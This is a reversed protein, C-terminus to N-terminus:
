EPIEKVLFTDIIIRLAQLDNLPRTIHKISNESAHKNEVSEEDGLGCVSTLRVSQAMYGGVIFENKLSGVFTSEDKFHKHIM